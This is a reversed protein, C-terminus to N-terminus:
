NSQPNQKEEEEKLKNDRIEKAILKDQSFDNIYFINTFLDTCNKGEGTAKNLNDKIEQIAKDAVNFVFDKEVIEGTKNNKLQFEPDSNYKNKLETLERQTKSLEDLLNNIKAPSSM